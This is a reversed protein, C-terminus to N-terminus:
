RGSQRDKLIERATQARGDAIREISNRSWLALGVLAALSALTILSGLIADLSM